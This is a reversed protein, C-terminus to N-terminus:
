PQDAPEPLRNGQDLYRVGNVESYELYQRWAGTKALERDVRYSKLPPGDIRLAEGLVRGDTALAEKQFGLCWLITPALDTNGSPLTDTIGARFDPGAAVLTNHMDYASLSAHQGTKEALPDMDATLLGPAGTASRGHTWRWSVILDPAQPSDTHTEALPFTGEIPERASIVGTWPQEQLWAVLRHIVTPAHGGVYFLSSGGNSVVMIEDPRLGGPTARSANFGARQLEAAVDVKWAITSFGHDSVVMVDTTETLGRRTLEALVLGLNRDSNHIATLSQPSGPGTAHQSFDPEALWLLSFPPVGEKWLVQLLAQTTWDDRAMKDQIPSIKPFDGLLDTLKLELRPPLTAGEFVVAPVGELNPRRARDHLMAVQKSGAIATPLGHAHLVEAVTPRGLYHGDSVEDGKRVVGPKEIGVTGDPDIAPRYDTNAIVFSHAPYAGTAIATGNVETSSLYAPHHHAFFVGRQVLGWLNPTTSESIFDPRMGDWVVVIVQRSPAAGAGAAVAALACGAALWRIMAHSKM